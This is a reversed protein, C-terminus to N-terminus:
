RVKEDLFSAIIEGGGMLWISKGDIARLHQVFAALPEDVFNVGAPVSQPPAHRSFVYTKRSRDFKAGLGVSVDFTKRGMVTTDITRFFDNMGYFGEPPPRRTLWDLDGDLRAIYGDVSSAIHAIVKRRNM